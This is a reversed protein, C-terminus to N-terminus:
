YHRQLSLTDSGDTFLLAIRQELPYRVFRLVRANSNLSKMELLMERGAELEGTQIPYDEELLEIKNEEPRELPTGAGAPNALSGDYTEGENHVDMQPLGAAVEAKFAELDRPADGTEIVSGEIVKRGRGSIESMGPFESSGAPTEQTELVVPQSKRVESPYSQNDIEIMGELNVRSQKHKKHINRIVARDTKSRAFNSCRQGFGISLRDDRLLFQETFVIQDLSFGIFGYRELPLAGSSPIRMM